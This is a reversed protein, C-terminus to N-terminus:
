HNINSQLSIKSLKNSFRNFCGCRVLVEPSAYVSKEGLGATIRSVECKIAGVLCLDAHALLFELAESRRKVPLSRRSLLVTSRRGAARSKRRPRAPLRARRVSVM